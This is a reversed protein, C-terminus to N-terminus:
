VNIIKKKNDQYMQAYENFGDNHIFNLEYLIDCMLCAASIIFTSIIIHNLSHATATMTAFILSVLLMIYVFWTYVSLRKKLINLIEQRSFTAMRTSILLEQFIEPNIKIIEPDLKYIAFTIKRFVDDAKNYSKFSNSVIFDHYKLIMTKYKKEYEDNKAEDLLFKVLHDIRRLAHLEKIILEKLLHLRNMARNILFATLISFLTVVPIDLRASFLFKNNQNFRYGIYAFSIGLLIYLIFIIIKKFSIKLNMYKKFVPM